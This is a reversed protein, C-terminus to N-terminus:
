KQLWVYEGGPLETILIPEGELQLKKGSVLQVKLLPVDKMIISAKSIADGKKIEKINFRYIVKEKM